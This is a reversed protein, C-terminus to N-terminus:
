SKEEVTIAVRGLGRRRSTGLGRIYPLGRALDAAFDSTGGVAHVDAHMVVPIAVERVRLSEAKAVGDEMATAALERFLTAALDPGEQAVWAELADPLRADGVRLLGDRREAAARDAWTGFLRETTGKEVDGCDEASQVGERLLGRLTRGPLFPLGAPTKGVEGDLAPGRGTGSGAHWYDFLEIRLKM